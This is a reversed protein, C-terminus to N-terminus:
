NVNTCIFINIIGSTKMKWEQFNCDQKVYNPLINTLADQAREDLNQECVNLLRWQCVCIRNNM